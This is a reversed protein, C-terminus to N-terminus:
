DDLERNMKEAHEKVLDFPDGAPLHAGDDPVIPLGEVRTILRRLAWTAVRSRHHIAIELAGRLYVLESAREVHAATLIRTPKDDMCVVTARM